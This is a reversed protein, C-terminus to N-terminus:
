QVRAVVYDANSGPQRVRIVDTVLGEYWWAKAQKGPRGCHTHLGM